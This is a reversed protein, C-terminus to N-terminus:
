TRIRLRSAAALRAGSRGHLCRLARASCIEINFGAARNANVGAVELATTATTVGGLGTAGEERSEAPLRCGHGRRWAQGSSLALWTHVWMSYAWLIRRRGFKFGDGVDVACGVGREADGALLPSELQLRGMGLAALYSGSIRVRVEAQGGTPAVHQGGLGLRQDLSSMHLARKACNAQRSCLPYVHM